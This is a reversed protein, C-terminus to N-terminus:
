GNEEAILEAVYQTLKVYGLEVARNFDIIVLASDEMLRQVEKESQAYYEAIKAYNFVVHRAAAAVLFVKEKEPLKESKLIAEILEDTKKTDMLESIAPKPGSPRYIPIDIKRSYNTADTIPQDNQGTLIGRLEDDTFLIGIDLGNHLDTLLQEADWNLDLEQVRNDRYAMRRGHPTDIEVDIRQTAVLTKGDTPVIIVDEFGDAIATEVTKNGGVINLDKDLLIGRGLGDQRLSDDLMAMGRETGQNANHSDPKLDTLKRRQVEM